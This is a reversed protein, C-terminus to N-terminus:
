VTEPEDRLDRPECTDAFIATEPRLSSQLSGTISSNMKVLIINYVLWDAIYKSQLSRGYQDVWTFRTIDNNLRDLRHNLYDHIYKVLFSITLFAGSENGLVAQNFKLLQV